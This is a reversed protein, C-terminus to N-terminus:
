TSSNRSLVFFFCPEDQMYGLPRHTTRKNRKDRFIRIRRIRGCNRYIAKALKHRHARRSVNRTCARVCARVAPRSEFANEM